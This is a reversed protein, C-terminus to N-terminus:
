RRSATTSAASCCARTACPSAASACSTWRRRPSRRHDREPPQLAHPARGGQAAQAGARRRRTLADIWADDTLIKQPMVAPGKTAFRMRRVHDISSCRRASRRSRSPRAAPLRRRGLHRHGRARPAVRHVRVGAALAGREGQAPGEGGRRHRHRGRLQAHLLPLLGPLHRARLFLAKDLYRHTLGPVPTDAHEHLSDLDLKPHDPLLRSASRSSSSACRITARPQELRDAVAPLAVRAGVDARARLRAARRRHVGDSVLGKCRRGAAQRHEHDLEEGAVQPRPVRGRQRERLGPHAALVRRGAARPAGPQCAAGAAAAGRPPPTPRRFLPWSATPHWPPRM